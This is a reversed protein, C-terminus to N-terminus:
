GSIDGIKPQIKDFFISRKKRMTYSINNQEWEKLNKHKTQNFVQEIKTKNLQGCLLPILLTSRNMDAQPNRELIYKFRGFLSEIIDSSVHLSYRTVQKKITFHRQLWDLLDKKLIFNNPLQKILRRCQSFTVRNLGKNKLKEMVKSVIKATKSFQHIFPIVKEKEAFITKLKTSLKNNVDTKNIINLIKEGWEGLKGISLFRGKTRLKPPTLFFLKTQRLKKASNSVFATFRKYDATNAFQKKMSAAIVHSIDEVIPISTQQEKQWITVGKNLTRDNDKLILTPSGSKQFISHLASAIQKGNVIESINLGVCECDELRVSGKRQYFINMPVRLVVLAKKTGVDISHDMIAVWPENQPKVQQLLGLGLRLTWNIVSTFHPVKTLNLNKTADFLTLIRPISRYSVIGQRFLLFCLLRVQETSLADKVPSCVSM